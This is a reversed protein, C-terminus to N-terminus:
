QDSQEVPKPVAYSVWPTQGLFGIKLQGVYHNPFNKKLHKAVIEPKVGLLVIRGNDKLIRAYERISETYLTVVRDLEVQKGWPFNSIAVDFFNDPWRSSTANLVRLNSKFDPSITGLNISACEVSEESIDGGYPILGLLKGECLITGTGCFNDVLKEGKKPNSLLCLSAAVPPKLAGARECRRYHRVYLSSKPIRVSYIVRSTEVNVRIDFNSHDLETYEEDTIQSIGRALNAKLSDINISDNKYRAVTISFTSGLKRLARIYTGAQKLNSFPFRSIVYNEDLVDASESYGLVYHIDDCTRLKIVENPPLKDASFLIYKGSMEIIKSQPFLSELEGKSVQELGKTIFAVFMTDVQEIVSPEYHNESSEMDLPFKDM